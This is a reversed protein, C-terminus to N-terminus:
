MSETEGVQFIEVASRLERATSSLVSMSSATDQSSLSSERSVEGVDEMTKSITESMKVQSTTAETISEILEALQNSVDEIQQLKDHAGDALKTGQVVKGISEDIRSTVDKIETQISKVLLEIQKTSNSSSDALRQVEDAVVAFGHGADGAMAAQISANLALISTRDAIDDIIQVINGIELSSEGLRKISRATENIQERIEVMAQSTENVAMAGEQANERSKKSVSASQLANDAVQRISGVMEKIAEVAATVGKVQEINKEALSMTQRTVEESTIDVSETATKVKKIIDSFQDAMANFSDAIAGTMDETVEARVTFDGDSLASIEELLKMISEQISDREEQSQILVTIDDLMGNLSTAMVGLEDNSVVETRAQFDGKGIADLLGMIHNVQNTLGKSLKAAILIGLLISILGVAVVIKIVLSATREMEATAAAENEVAYDLFSKILPEAQKAAEQYGAIRAAIIGDTNSVEVFWKDLEAVQDNLKAKTAPVISPVDVRSLFTKKLENVKAINERNPAVLYDQIGATLLYYSNNVMSSDITAATIGLNDLSQKLKVLEGFEKDERLELINVTGVFASLYENISDMASQAADVDQQVTSLQQIEYLTRYAEGGYEVFPNLFQEKAERIGIKEHNLLFDKEYGRMHQLYKETELSLRAIKGHVRVLDNVTKQTYTQSILTIAIVVLTLGILALFSWLLKNRIKRRGVKTVVKRSQVGPKESKGDMVDGYKRNSDETSM